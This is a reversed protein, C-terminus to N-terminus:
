DGRLASASVPDVGRVVGVAAPFDAIARREAPVLAMAAFIGVFSLLGYHHREGSEFLGTPFIPYLTFLWVLALGAPTEELYEKRMVWMAILLIIALYFTNSLAYYLRYREPSMIKGHEHELNWYLNQM